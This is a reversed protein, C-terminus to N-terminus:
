RTSRKGSGESSKSLPQNHVNRSMWDYIVDRDDPQSSTIGMGPFGRNCAGAVLIADGEQAISLAHIIADQRKSIHRVHDSSDFNASIGNAIDKALEPDNELDSLIAIDSHAEVVQAV